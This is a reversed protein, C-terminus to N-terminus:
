DARLADVIAMRAAKVAPLFGGILGMALAFALSAAAIAPTLAFSFALEAFSQFNTTSITIAQLFSAAALGAVGGVAALLLSELLFAALISRRAFGLARLTGIEGTRTAVAAYMTIAAGIVAGLSFIVSLTLGLVRLFNALARSQDEYFQRERKIEVTLRPEADVAALLADYADPSGLEAIVSSFGFRRFAQSLQEADGWIESDFATGGADFIGVVQWQRQAFSLSQGLEVGAFQRAVSSGVVIESAGPRFMRGEIMRVQPRLALGMPPLGRIPVNSRRGSSAGDDSRKPLSNLVVVEKSVRPQGAADRAIQPPAEILAAQERTVGSQIETSAGKRIALVNNPSGTAVLTQRLGAELMLVAAFVFVVLAMGGATLATTLRRVWLNRAIYALPLKM